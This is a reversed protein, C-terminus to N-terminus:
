RRRDPARSLRAHSHEDILEAFAAGRHATMPGGRAPVERLLLLRDPVDRSRRPLGPRQAM